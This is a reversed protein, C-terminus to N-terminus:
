SYVPQCVIDFRSAASKFGLGTRRDVGTEEIVCDSEPTQVTTDADVLEENRLLLTTMDKDVGTYLCMSNEGANGALLIATDVVV